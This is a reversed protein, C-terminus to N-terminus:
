APKSFTRVIKLICTQSVGYERGLISQSTDGLSYRQRIEVVQRETLKARPNAEGLRPIWGDRGKKHRDAVNDANTGLFLHNPNCCRPNDCTHLVQITDKIDKLIRYYYASVRHAFKPGEGSGLGFWGYGSKGICANWNWCEDPGKKDVKAWFRETMSKM